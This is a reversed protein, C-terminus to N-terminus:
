INLCYDIEHQRYYQNRGWNIELDIRLEPQSLGM